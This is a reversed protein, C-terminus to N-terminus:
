GIIGWYKAEVMIPIAYTAKVGLKERQNSRFPEPFTEILGGCYQGATLREYLKEIGDYPIINMEPHASQSAAYSSLWEYPHVILHGITKGTPDKIHEDIGLRDAGASKGLIELARNVGREFDDDSLLASTCDATAQLLLNIKSDVSPQQNNTSSTSRDRNKQEM